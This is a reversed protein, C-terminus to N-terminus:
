VLEEAELVLNVYEECDDMVKDHEPEGALNTAAELQV